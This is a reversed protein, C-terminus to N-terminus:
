KLTIDKGYNDEERHPFPFSNWINESIVSISISDTRTAILRSCFRVLLVLSDIIYTLRTSILELLM